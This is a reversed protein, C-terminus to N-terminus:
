TKRPIEKRRAKWDFIRYVNRKERMCAVYGVWRTRRTKMM